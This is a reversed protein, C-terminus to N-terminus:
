SAIRRGRGAKWAGGLFYVNALVIFSAVVFALAHFVGPRHLLWPLVALIGGILSFQDREGLVKVKQFFRFLLGRRGEEVEQEFHYQIATMTGGLRQRRVYWFMWGILGATAVLMGLGVPFAYPAWSVGDTSAFRAYGVVLGLVYALYTINDGVSDMWAGRESEMMKSRALEGDNRDLASTLQLMVGSFALAELTGIAAAAGGIVGLVTNLLTMQNPTMPTEVLIKSLPISLRSNFYRSIPGSTTKTINAFILKKARQRGAADVISTAWCGRPPDDYLPTVPGDGRRELGPAGPVTHPADAAVLRKWVETALAVDAKAVITADSPDGVRISLVKTRPDARLVAEADAARPGHLILETAGGRHAGLALRLVVPQSCVRAFAVDSDPVEIAVRVSM